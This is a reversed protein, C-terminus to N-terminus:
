GSGGTTGADVLYLRRRHGPAGGGPLMHWGDLRHPRCHRGHIGITLILATAVTLIGMAVFSARWGLRLSVAVWLSLVLGVKVIVPHILLPEIDGVGAKAWDL